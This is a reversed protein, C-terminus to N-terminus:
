PKKDCKKCRCGHPKIHEEWFEEGYDYTIEEGEEIKKIAQIFVRGKIIESEANCVGDCAHNVYRAINWRPTGDITKKSNVEFLYQATVKKEAEEATLINGVYEIIKEGKKINEGAYLGLGAIGRKVKVMKFHHDPLKKTNPSLKSKTDAVKRSGKKLIKSQKKLM